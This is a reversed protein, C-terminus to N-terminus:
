RGEEKVSGVRNFSLLAPARREKTLKKKTLFPIVRNYSIKERHGGVKGMLVSVRKGVGTTLERQICYPNCESGLLGKQEGNFLKHPHKLMISRILLPIVV